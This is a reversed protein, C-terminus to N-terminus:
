LRLLARRSGNEPQVPRSSPKMAPKPTPRASYKKSGREASCFPPEAVGSGADARSDVPL